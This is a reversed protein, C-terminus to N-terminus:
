AQAVVGSQMLLDLGLQREDPTMERKELVAGTDKRVTTVIAEGFDFTDVVPLMRTEAGAVLQGSLRRTERKLDDLSKKFRDLAEGRETEIREIDTQLKALTRGRDITEDPTLDCRVPAIREKTVKPAEQLALKKLQGAM